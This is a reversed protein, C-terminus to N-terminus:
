ANVFMPNLKWKTFSHGYTGDTNQDNYQGVAFALEGNGLYLPRLACISTTAIIQDSEVAGNVVTVKHLEHNSEAKATTAKIYFVTNVDNGFCAGSIYHDNGFPVGSHGIDVVVNDLYLKYVFDKNTNDTAIAYLYATSSLQTKGAYLLRGYIGNNTLTNLLTMNTNTAVNEDSASGGSLEVFHGIETGSLDYTEYTSLDVYCGRASSSNSPNKGYICKLYKADDTAQAMTIYPDSGYFAKYVTWTDGYDSSIACAYGVADTSGNLYSILRFFMFIKSDYEFLQSYCTKYTYSGTQPIDFSIDEMEDISYATTSRFCIMHNNVSHGFSGAALIRGDSLVLVGMGNHDDNNYSPALSNYQMTGDPQKRVVGAMGDTSVYGIYANGFADVDTATIWWDWTIGNTRIARQSIIQNIQNSLADINDLSVFSVAECFDDVDATESTDETVRMITYRADFGEPVIYGSTVFGSSQYVGGSFRAILLRFGTGITIKYRKNTTIVDPTAVRYKFKSDFAGNATLVTGNEFTGFNNIYKSTTHSIEEIESANETISQSLDEINSIVDDLGKGRSIVTGYEYYVPSIESESSVWEIMLERTDVYSTQFSVRLFATGTPIPTANGSNTSDIYSLLAKNADYFCMRGYMLIVRKTGASNKGTLAYSTHEGVPIFDSTRRSVTASVVVGDTGLVGEVVKSMDLANPALTPKGDWVDNLDSKLDSIIGGLAVKRLGDTSNDIAAYDGDSLDSASPLSRIKVIDPM